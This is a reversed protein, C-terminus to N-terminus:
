GTAGAASLAHSRLLDASRQPQEWWFVHGVDELLELRAGPVLRAILEGNISAIMRDETGHVVLTPAAIDGLRSQTDHAACAQMQMLITKLRVPAAMAMDRFAAYNEPDLRFAESTNVNYSARFALEQDGSMQGQSLEQIVEPSALSSGEGGCYTCGLTLTRIRSGHRLALEQAIMGGMSIGMVHATEWGLQDLLDAADDAMDAISFPEDVRPSFGVGRNDFAVIDFVDQLATLFPEGWSAHTGGMGQILLLPEGTGRRM